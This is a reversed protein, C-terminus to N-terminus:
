RLHIERWSMGPDWAANAFAAKYIKGLGLREAVRREDDWKLLLSYYLYWEALDREEPIYYSWSALEEETFGKADSIAVFEVTANEDVLSQYRKDLVITGCWDNKNDVISFRKVGSGLEVGTTEPQPTSELRFFATYSWFHLINRTRIPRSQTPLSSDPFSGGPTRARKGTSWQLGYGAWRPPGPKQSTTEVDISRAPLIQAPEEVHWKIWTHEALWANLNDLTGSIMSPRWAAPGNWGCWSWSPFSGAGVDIRDSDSTTEWLLAWDFYALPLGFVFDSALRAKLMGALGNFAVLRDSLFTLKRASYLSVYEAFLLIPIKSGFSHVPSNVIDLTWIKSECEANIEESWTVQRCQFYVRQEVFVLSRPSLIREQFTWARTNWATSHIDGEVPRIVALEMGFCTAVPQFAHRPTAPCGPIGHSANKGAAACINLYGLGYLKGMLPAVSSWEEPDDQVICLSDVWIYRLGLARVLDMADRLTRPMRESDIPLRKRYEPLRQKTLKVEVGKGWCYSLTVYRPFEQDVPLPILDKADVLRQEYTDIFRFNKIWRDWGEGLPTRPQQLALGCHEGHCRTCIDLWRKILDINVSARPIRRSLFSPRGSAEDDSADQEMTDTELPVIFADSYQGNPDFVRLRRTASGDGVLRGDLKWEVACSLNSLNDYGSPRGLGPARTAMYLLWCFSCSRRKQYIMPLNELLYQGTYSALPGPTSQRSANGRAPRLFLSSESVSDSIRGFNRRSASPRAPFPTGAPSLHQRSNSSTNSPHETGHSPSVPRKRPIFDDLSLNLLACEACLQDPPPQNFVALQPIDVHARSEM